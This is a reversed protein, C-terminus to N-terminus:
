DRGDYNLDLRLDLCHELFEAVIGLTFGWICYGDYFYCPLDVKGQKFKFKTRVLNAPDRLHALPVQFVAELEGPEPVFDLGTPIVGVYPVVRVGHITSRPPLTALVEVEEPPLGTEEQSERLATQLLTSDGPEWMGGPFAVQGSHSNVHEARKIFLVEPNSSRTLAM